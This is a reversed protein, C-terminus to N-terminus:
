AQEFRRHARLLNDREFAIVDLAEGVEIWRAAVFNEEAQPSIRAMLPLSYVFLHVDKAHQRKDGPRTFTYSTVGVKDILHPTEALTLEERIERTAADEPTEGREIHGKPVLYEGTDKQVLAVYVRGDGPAKYFVFGGASHHKVLNGLYEIGHM